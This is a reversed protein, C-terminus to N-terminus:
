YTPPSLEFRSPGMGSHAIPGSMRLVLFHGLFAGKLMVWLSTHHDIEIYSKSNCYAETVFKDLM